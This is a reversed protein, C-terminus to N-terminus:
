KIKKNITLSSKIKQDQIKKLPQSENSDGDEYVSWSLVGDASLTAEEVL